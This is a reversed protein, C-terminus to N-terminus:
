DPYKLGSDCLVTVVWADKPLKGSQLLKISAAVNGGSTFGLFLGEKEGLLKRYKVAEENSVAISEDVVEYEFLPQVRGYGSGQMLHLPNTIQKGAIVQAGEPEVAVCHIDPKVSKLYRSVGTLTGSTGVAAVFADVRHGTQRWIEPGTTEEHSLCNDYNNFQDVYYSGTKEIIDMAAKEAAQVDSITVNGPQGDVQDALLLNAGLARMMIARQPSNGKSMTVTLPHGLVSCVFALGCGQNGSTVEVVPGGPKLKGAKRANKIMFLASRDKVSHTPSLFECKALLRGPGPWLRDLALLPTNGVLDLASETIEPKITDVM